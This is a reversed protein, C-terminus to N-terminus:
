FSGCEVKQEVEVPKDLVLYPKFTWKRVANECAKHGEPPGSYAHASIVHGDKGVVINVKVTFHQQRLSAPWQPISSMNIPTLQVGSIRDGLPGVADRPPLFSADDVHSLFEFTGVRLKLYPKGGDTVDVEQAINRGQFDGIRNYVTQFWGFGRSYRLVSDDPEICYQTSDSIGSDREIFLCQLKYGSFTREVNRGHFGQLTAAYYFPDVVESRVQSQARSPWRQDGQRFLGKDTGYDTQNFDDSKYIRKYKKEGAWFEEYIGSHVNDGDEDFQDYTVIVHWPPVDASNLGNLPAEKAIWSRIDNTGAGLKKEPTLNVRVSTIPPVAVESDSKAEPAVILTKRKSDDSAPIPQGEQAYVSTSSVLILMSLLVADARRTM